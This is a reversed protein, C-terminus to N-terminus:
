NITPAIPFVWDEKFDPTLEKVLPAGQFLTIRTWLRSKPDFKSAGFFSLKCRLMHIPLCAEGILNDQIEAFPSKELSQIRRVIGKYVPHALLFYVIPKELDDSPVTALHEYLEKVSRAITLSQEKDAGPENFREGLRPEEKESSRYWFFHQAEPQTFDIQIAWAYNSEILQKIAQLSMDPQLASQEEAGMEDELDDVLSPYLEILLSLLLEQTEISCHQMTWNVLQQWVTNQIPHQHTRQKLQHNLQSLEQAAQENNKQQRADGTVTEELHRQAKELLKHLAAIHGKNISASYLVRSVATERAQIWSHILKPHKVLFPAMGLGTANGVGLYRKIDPHLSVATKPARCRAVHEVLEAAFHRIMFVTFLQASFTRKFSKGQELKVYDALGFKGNGYVATTRVLYGVKTLATPDPQTGNALCDIVYSFTEVM